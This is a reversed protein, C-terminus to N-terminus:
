KLDKYKIITCESTDIILNLFEDVDIESSYPIRLFKLVDDKRYKIEINGFSNEQITISKGDKFKYKKFRKM